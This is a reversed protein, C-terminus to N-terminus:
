GRDGAIWDGFKRCLESLDDETLGTWTEIRGSRLWIAVFSEKTKLVSGSGNRTVRGGWCDGVLISDLRKTLEAFNERAAKTPGPRFMVRGAHEGTFQFLVFASSPIRM